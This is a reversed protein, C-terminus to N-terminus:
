RCAKAAAIPKYQERLAFLDTVDIEHFSDVHPVAQWAATMNEATRKRVGRLAIRTGAAPVERDVQPSAGPDGGGSREESIWHLDRRRRRDSRWTM